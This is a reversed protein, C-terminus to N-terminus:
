RTARNFQEPFNAELCNSCTGHARSCTCKLSGSRRCKIHARHICNAFISFKRWDMTLYGSPNSNWPNWQSWCTGRLSRSMSTHPHQPVYDNSVMVTTAYSHKGPSGSNPNPCPTEIDSPNLRDAKSALPELLKFLEMMRYLHECMPVLDCNIFAVTRALNAVDESKKIVM